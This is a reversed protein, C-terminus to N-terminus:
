TLSLCESLEKFPFCTLLSIPSANWVEVPCTPALELFARCFATKYLSEGTAFKHGGHWHSKGDPFHMDYGMLIVRGAGAAIALGLAQYGSNGGTRLANPNKSLGGEFSGGRSDNRLLHVDADDIQDGTQEISCKQGSFALFPARAKHQEHWSADAFYAIDARPMPEYANNIAIIRRRKTEAHEAGDPSTDDRRWHDVAAFASPTISPGGGICVVTAGKWESHIVSFRDFPFSDTRRLVKKSEIEKREAPSISPREGQSEAGVIDVAQQDCLLRARAPTTWYVAGGPHGEVTCRPKVRVQVTRENAAGIAPMKVVDIKMM